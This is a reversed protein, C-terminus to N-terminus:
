LRILRLSLYFPLCFKKKIVFSVVVVAGFKVVDVVEEM